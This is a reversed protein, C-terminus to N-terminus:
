EKIFVNAIANKGAIADEIVNVLDKPKEGFSATALLKNNWSTYKVSNLILNHRNYQNTRAEIKDLWASGVGPDLYIRIISLDRLSSHTFGFLAVSNAAADNFCITINQGDKNKGYCAIADGFSPTLVLKVIFWDANASTNKIPVTTMDGYSSICTLKIGVNSELFIHLRLEIPSLISPSVPFDIYGGTFMSFTLKIAKSGILVHTDDTIIVANIAHTTDVDNLSEGDTIDTWYSSPQLNLGYMGFAILQAVSDPRVLLNAIDLTKCATKYRQLLGNAIRICATADIYDSYSIKKVHEGNEAISQPDTYEAVFEVTSKSTSKTRFFRVINILTDKNQTLSPQQFHYGEYLQTLPLNSILEFCLIHSSNIYWRYQSVTYAINAISLIRDMLEALTIDNADMSPVTFAPLDIAAASYVIGVATLQTSVLAIIENLTKNVFSMSITKRTLRDSFGHCTVTLTHKDSDNEKSDTIYATDIFVGDIWLEVVTDNIIPIDTGQPLTFTLEILGGNKEMTFTPNLIAGSDIGEDLSYVLTNTDKGIIRLTIM